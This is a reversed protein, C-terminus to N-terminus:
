IHCDVVAVYLDPHTVLLSLYQAYHAPWDDTPDSVVGWWGMDGQAWWGEHDLIAFTQLAPVASCYDAETMAPTIDYLWAREEPAYAQADQWARARRHRAQAQMAVLDLDGVRCQDCARGDSRSILRGAYRGGLLWWDWKKHPNTRTYVTVVTEQADCVGYGFKHTDALDPVAGAPLLPIGHWAQCYATFPVVTAIPLSVEEWGDPCGRSCRADSPDYVTGHPDRYRRVTESAYEERLRATIDLTQVYADDIGTCEFEHYPQLAVALACGLCQLEGSTRQHPQVGLAV